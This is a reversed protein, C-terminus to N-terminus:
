HGAIKLLDGLRVVGEKRRLQTVMSDFVGKLLRVDAMARHLRAPEEFGSDETDVNLSEALPALAFSPLTYLRKALRLTDVAPVAGLSMGVRRLEERLFSLDFVVNHGVLVASNVAEMIEPVIEIFRPKDVLSRGDIGNVFFAGLSIEREPNILTEFTKTISGQEVRVFAIECIRDGHFPDLGTTECDIFCLPAEDIYTETAVRM